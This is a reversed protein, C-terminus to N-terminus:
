KLAEEIEGTLKNLINEYPTTDNRDDGREAKLAIVLMASYLIQKESMKGKYSKAYTNVTSDILKAARRYLAEEEQSSVRFSMDTDYFHLRIQRKTKEDAM